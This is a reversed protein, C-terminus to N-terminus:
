ITLDKTLPTLFTVSRMMGSPIHIVHDVFEDPSISQAITYHNPKGGDLTPILYGSTTVIHEEQDGEDLTAWHGDGAHADAWLVTVREYKNPQQYQNMLM